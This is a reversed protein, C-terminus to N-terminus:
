GSRELVSQEAKFYDAFDGIVPCGATEETERGEKQYLIANMGARM